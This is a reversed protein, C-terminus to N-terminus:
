ICSSVYVIAAQIVTLSGQWYNSPFQCVLPLQVSYLVESNKSGNDEMCGQTCELPSLPLLTLESFPTGQGCGAEEDLSLLFRHRGRPGHM